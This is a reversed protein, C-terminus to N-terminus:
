YWYRNNQCVQLFKLRQGVAGEVRVKFDEDPDAWPVKSPAIYRNVTGKIRSLLLYPPLWVHYGTTTGALVGHISIAIRGIGSTGPISEWGGEVTYKWVVGGSNAFYAGDSFAAVDVLDSGGISVWSGGIYQEAAGATTIAFKTGGDPSVSAHSYGLGISAVWTNTSITYSWLMGLYNQTNVWIVDDDVMHIDNIDAGGITAWTGGSWLLLVGGIVGAVVGGPSVAIATLTSASLLAWGADETWSWLDGVDSIVYITGDPGVAIDLCAGFTPGAFPTFPDADVEIGIAVDGAGELDPINITQSGVVLDDHDVEEIDSLDTELAVHAAGGTGGIGEVDLELCASGPLGSVPLPGRFPIM